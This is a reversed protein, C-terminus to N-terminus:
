PTRRPGPIRYKRRFALLMKCSEGGVRNVARSGPVVRFRLREYLRMAPNDLRVSLTLAPCTDRVGDILREMLSTGIGRGRWGPMVAVLLEPTHRDYYGFGRNHGTLLRSWAAGVPEGSVDRAIFGRDGKRGWDRVYRALDPNERADEITEGADEMHAAEYLARWMFDEDERTLEHITIGEHM